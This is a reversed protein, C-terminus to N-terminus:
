RAQVVLSIRHPTEKYILIQCSWEGQHFVLRNPTTGAGYDDVQVLTWGLAPYEGAYYQQLDALPATSHYVVGGSPHSDPFGTKFDSDFVAGPYHPLTRAIDLASQARCAGLLVALLGLSLLTRLRSNPPTIAPM